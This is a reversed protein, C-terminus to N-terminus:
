ENHTELGMVLEQLAQKVENLQEGIRFDMQEKNMELYQEIFNLQEQHLETKLAAFSPCLYCSLPPYMQCLGNKQIDRDCYGIGGVNLMPLPIHSAGGQILVGEDSRREEVVKGLFKNVIPEIADDIADSVIGAISPRTEVYVEVNKLDAHGLTHAIHFKSAGEEALSTALTYRFRRATLRLLKNTRPSVINAERIFRNLSLTIKVHPDRSNTMEFLHEDPAKSITTELLNGLGSSIPRLRKKNASGRKKAFPVELHYFVQQKVQIKKLDKVKLRSITVPRLGLECLLMVLARDQDTGKGEKIAKLILSKEDPSLPGKTVHRFRVPQARAPRSVRVAKFLRYKEVTFDQYGKALGWRYFARLISVNLGQRSTNQDLWTMYHEALQPHFIHWTFMAKVPAVNQPQEILWRFFHLITFYISEVTSPKRNTLRDALFLKLIRVARPSCVPEGEYAFGQLVDWDIKLGRGGDAYYQFLWVPGSTDIIQGDMTWVQQPVSPLDSLEHTPNEIIITM